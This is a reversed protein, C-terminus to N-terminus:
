LFRLLRTRSIRRAVRRSYEASSFTRITIAPKRPSSLMAPSAGMATGCKKCFRAGPSVPAKCAPCLVELKSGCQECFAADEPNNTKCSPCLMQSRM